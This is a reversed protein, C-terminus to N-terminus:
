TVMVTVVSPTSVTAVIRALGIESNLRQRCRRPVSGGPEVLLAVLCAPARDDRFVAAAPHDPEVIEFVPEHALASPAM